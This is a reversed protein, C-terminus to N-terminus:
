LALMGLDPWVYNKHLQHYEADAEQESPSLYKHKLEVWRYHAIVPGLDKWLV